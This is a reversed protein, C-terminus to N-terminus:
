GFSGASLNCSICISYFLKKLSFTKVTESIKDQEDRLEELSVTSGTFGKTFSRMANDIQKKYQM